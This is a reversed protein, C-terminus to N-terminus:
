RSPVALAVVPVTSPLPGSSGSGAAGFSVIRGDGSVVRYGDGSGTVAIDVIPSALPTAATSGLFPADGFTFVGGDGAILWYGNGSPTAAMGTISRNLRQGGTSGLFRADGFAFIGGDSATLWYGDGTSTAAMGLVPQNLRQGGTSGLYRADGFAFIGGDSAVLWYGQGSRTPAMGVIPRNLRLGGAPGFSAADGFPHVTGDAGVLWYGEASPTAVITVIPASLRQGALSGHDAAGGFAWVQGAENTVWLDGAPPDTGAGSISAGNLFNFTVWIGRDSFSVGIGVRNYDGLVNAKHSPSAMFADHLVGVSSGRGVNEGIRRWEQTVRREFQDRLDPRHSMTAAAAMQASWERAIPTVLIDLALPALGADSRAANLAALFELETQEEPTVPRAHASPTVSLSLVAVVVLAGLRRALPRAPFTAGRRPTRMRAVM